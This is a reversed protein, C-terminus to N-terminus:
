ISCLCQFDEEEVMLRMRDILMRVFGDVWTLDSEVVRFIHERIRSKPDDLRRKQADMLAIQADVLGKQMAMMKDLRDAFEWKEMMTKAGTIGSVLAGFGEVIGETIDKMSEFEMKLKELSTKAAETDIQVKLKMEERLVDTQLRMAEIKHRADTEILTLKLKFEQEKALKAIEAAAKKVEEPLKKADDAADEFSDGLEEVKGVSVGTATALQEFSIKGESALKYLKGLSEESFKGMKDVQLGWTKALDRAAKEAESVDVKVKLPKDGIEGMKKGVVILADLAPGTWMTPLKTDWPAELVIQARQAEEKLAKIPGTLDIGPIKDLLNLVDAIGSCLKDKLYFYGRAIAENFGQWAAAITVIGDHLVTVTPVVLCMVLHVAGLATKIAGISTSMEIFWRVGEMVAGIFERVEPAKFMERAKLMTAEVHEKIGKMLEKITGTETEWKRIWDVGDKVFTIVSSLIGLLSDGIIIGLAKISNWLMKSQNIFTGIMKNFAELMVGQSNKMSEQKERLLDYNNAMNLIAIAAPKEPMIRMVENLTLKKAAIDGLIDILPLIKGSADVTRLGFEKIAEKAENSPKQFAMMAGTLYTFQEDVLQTENTLVAIMAGLSEMDTGSAVAVSAVKGLNTALQEAKVSGEKIINQLFDAAKGSDEAALKFPKMIALMAKSYTNVDTVGAVAGKSAMELIKLAEAGLGTASQIQYMADTLIVASQPVATSLELIATKIKPMDEEAVGSILTHVEAMKQQFDAAAKVSFAAFATTAAAVAIAMKAIAAAAGVAISELKSMSSSSKDLGGTLSNLTGSFRDEGEIILKLVEKGPM